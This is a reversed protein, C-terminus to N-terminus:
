STFKSPAEFFVKVFSILEGDISPSSQGDKKLTDQTPKNGNGSKKPKRKRTQIGDKRM